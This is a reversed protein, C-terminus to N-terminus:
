LYQRALAQIWAQQGADANLAPIYDLTKGGADIFTDRNRLAIEELTELCDFSFGPCVVQVKDVGQKGWDALLEDTYPTVWPARGFRSQFSCAWEDEALGLKEALAEATARCRSPYRDGKDECLKPIGHFSFLLKEAKGQSARWQAIQAVMAEQWQPQQWYDKIFILEPVERVQALARHVADLAAATTTASYQPFLPVVMLREVGADLLRYIGEDLAPNGYTMALEVPMNLQAALEDALKNGYLRQPSGGQWIRQYLAAVAKPRFPLIVLHLLLLWVLRPMEVVRPDSLFAKLFRRVARPTPADPTGLNILLLGSSANHETTDSM